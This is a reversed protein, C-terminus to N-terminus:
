SCRIAARREGDVRRHCPKCMPEYCDPHPCYACVSGNSAHARRREDPCGGGYAWEEAPQGCACPHASARGRTGTIRKHMGLYSIADGSWNPHSAGRMSAFRERKTCGCSATHGSRLDSTTPQVESGCECRCRWRRKRHRDVGVLEVVTLRGFTQGTLDSLLMTGGEPRFSASLEDM